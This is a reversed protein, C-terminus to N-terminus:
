DDNTAEIDKKNAILREPELVGRENVRATGVMQEDPGYVRVRPCSPLGLALRQGHCFRVRDNESLHVAPLTQMLADLPKLTALREDVSMTELAQLTVADELSLVGVKTRRLSALHAGCGLAEGIDEALVRIYTGKSCTVEVTLLEDAFELIELKEIRVSRAQREISVGERALDYLTKGDRKLASFMPPVQLIDGRFANLAKEIDARNVRVPRNQLFDGELDGTTTKQGLKIGAIYTKDAHLLDASFKTAEGFTLALLGSALPDLTGTHGAKQANLLRRATQLAANSTMAYPKDLLLVGDVVRGKRKM